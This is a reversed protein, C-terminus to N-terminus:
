CITEKKGTLEKLKNDWYAYREEMQKLIKRDTPTSFGSEVQEHADNLYEKYTELSQSFLEEAYSAREQEHPWPSQRWERIVAKLIDFFKDGDRYLNIFVDLDSLVVPIVEKNTTAQQAITRNKSEQKNMEM